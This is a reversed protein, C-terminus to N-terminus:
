VYRGQRKKSVAYGFLGAALAFGFLLTITKNRERLAKVEETETKKTEGAAEPAPKEEKRLEGSCFAMHYCSRWEEM